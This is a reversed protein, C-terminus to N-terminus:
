VGTKAVSTPTLWRCPPFHSSPFYLIIVDDEIDLWRLAWWTWPLDWQEVYTIKVWLYNDKFYDKIIEQKYKVIIIIENVFEYINEINHELIPKWFIKIMPKPTTNTLPRLRSWEWAALIIAKM